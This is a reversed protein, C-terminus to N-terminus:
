SEAKRGCMRRFADRCRCARARMALMRGRLTGAFVRVDYMPSEECGFETKYSRTGGKMFDYRKLGDHIASEIARIHAVVGPSYRAVDGTDTGGQYFYEVGAYRLNYHAAINVGDLSLLGLSLM